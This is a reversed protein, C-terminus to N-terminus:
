NYPLAAQPRRATLKEICQHHEVLERRRSASLPVSMRATGLRHLCYVCVPRVSNALLDHHDVHQHPYSTNM